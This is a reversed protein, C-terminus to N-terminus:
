KREHMKSFIYSLTFEISTHLSWFIVYEKVGCYYCCRVNFLVSHYFMKCSAEAHYNSQYLILVRIIKM